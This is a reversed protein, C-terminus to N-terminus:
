NSAAPPASYTIKLDRWVAIGDSGTSMALPTSSFAAETVQSRYSFAGTGGAGKFEQTGGEVTFTGKCGYGIRGTCTFAGFLNQGQNGSISCKGSGSSTGDASEMDLSITCAINGGSVLGQESEFVILGGASGSFSIRTPSTKTITGTTTLPAYANVLSEAAVSATPSVACAAAAVALGFFVVNKNM